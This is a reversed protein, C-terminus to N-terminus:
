LQGDTWGKYASGLDGAQASGLTITRNGAFAFHSKIVMMSRADSVHIPVSEVQNPLYRFRRLTRASPYYGACNTCGEVRSRVGKSVPKPQGAGIRRLQPEIDSVRICNWPLELQFM